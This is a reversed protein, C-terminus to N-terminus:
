DAESWNNPDDSDDSANITAFFDAEFDYDDEEDEDDIEPEKEDVRIDQDREIRDDSTGNNDGGKRQVAAETSKGIKGGSSKSRRFRRPVKQRPFKQRYQGLGNQVKRRLPGRILRKEPNYSGKFFQKGLAVAVKEAEFRDSATAHPYLARSITELQIRIVRKKEEAKFAKKADEDESIEGEEKESDEKKPPNSPQSTKHQEPVAANSPLHSDNPVLYKLM